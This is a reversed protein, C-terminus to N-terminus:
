GDTLGETQPRWHTGRDDNSHWTGPPHPLQTCIIPAPSGDAAAAHPLLEAGCFGSADRVLARQWRALDGPSPPPKAPMAYDELAWFDISGDENPVRIYRVRDDAM